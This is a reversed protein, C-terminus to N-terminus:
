ALTDKKGYPRPSRGALLLQQSDASLHNMSELSNEEEFSFSKLNGHGKVSTLPPSINKQMVKGHGKRSRELSELSEKLEELSFFLFISSFKEIKTKKESKEKKIKSNKPFFSYNEPFRDSTL